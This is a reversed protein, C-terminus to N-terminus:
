GIVQPKIIRREIIYQSFLNSPAVTILLGENLAPNITLQANPLFNFHEGGPAFTNITANGNADLTVTGYGILTSPPGGYQSSPRHRSVVVYVSHPALGNPSSVVLSTYEFLNTATNFTLDVNASVDNGMYTFEGSTTINTIHFGSRQRPTPPNTHSYAYTDTNPATAPSLTNHGNSWLPFPQYSGANALRTTLDQYNDYQASVTWVEPNKASDLNEGNIDIHYIVIGQFGFDEYRSGEEQRIHEVMFLQGSLHGYYLRSFNHTYYVYPNMANPEPSIVTGVPTGNLVIPEAWGQRFRYYPNIPSPNKAYGGWNGSAMLCHNSISQPRYLDKFGFVLHGTEHAFVGIALYPERDPTNSYQNQNTVQYRNFEIGQITTAHNNLWSFHPWLGSNPTAGGAYYINLPMNNAGVPIWLEDKVELLYDIFDQNDAIGDLAEKALLRGGVEEYYSKANEAEYYFVKNIYDIAGGSVDLFYDRVSGNNGFGTYGEENLHAEVEAISFSPETHKTDPFEVVITVGYIPRVSGDARTASETNERTSQRTAYDDGWLLRRAEETKRAIHEPSIDIGKPPLDTPSQWREGLNLRESLSPTRAEGTYVVTTPVLESKAANLRAYCWYGSRPNRVLTYGDPSEVRNYFEDGYARVFHATGDPQTIRIPEGNMPAALTTLATLASFTISLVLIALTISTKSKNRM